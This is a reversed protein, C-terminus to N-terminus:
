FKWGTPLFGGSVTVMVEEFLNFASAFMLAARFRWRKADSDFDRGWRAAFIQCTVLSTLVLCGRSDDDQEVFM